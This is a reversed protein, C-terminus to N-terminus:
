QFRDLKHYRVADSFNTIFTTSNAKPNRVQWIFQTIGLYLIALLVVAYAVIVANKSKEKKVNL